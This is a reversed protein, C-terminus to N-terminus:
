PDLSPLLGDYGIVFEEKSGLAERTGSTTFFRGALTPSILSTDM